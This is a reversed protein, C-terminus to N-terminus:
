GMATSIPKPIAPFRTRARPRKGPSGGEAGARWTAPDDDARADSLDRRELSRGNGDAQPWADSDDYTFAAILSGDYARLVLREGENALRGDYAGAVNLGPGYHENFTAPDRVVLIQDGPGLWTGVAFTFEIGETFRALSLDITGASRNSLEIFELDANKAPHYMIESIVISDASAPTGTLYTATNLASWEGNRWSRATLTVSRELPVKSLRTPLSFAEPNIAGGPLRPDTGDTTYYVGAADFISGGGISLLNGAAVPGEPLSFVPAGISPYLGAARLQDLVVQSRQPFYNERLTREMPKWHDQV